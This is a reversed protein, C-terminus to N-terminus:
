FANSTFINLFNKQLDIVLGGGALGGDGTKILGCNAGQKCGELMSAVILNPM